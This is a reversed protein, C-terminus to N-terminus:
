SKFVVFRVIVSSLATEITITLYLLHLDIWLITCHQSGANLFIIIFVKKSFRLKLFTCGKIFISRFEAFATYSVM